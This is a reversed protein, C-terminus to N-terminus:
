KTYRFISNIVNIVNIVNLWYINCQGEWKWELGTTALKFASGEYKM